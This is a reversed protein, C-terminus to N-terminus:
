MAEPTIPEVPEDVATDKPALLPAIESGFLTILRNTDLGNISVAGGPNLKIAFTLNEAGNPDLKRLFNVLRSSAEDPDLTMLVGYEESEGSMAIIPRLKALWAVVDTVFPECGRCVADVAGTPIPMVMSAMQLKGNAKIGYPTAGFEINQINVDVKGAEEASGKINIEAIVEGLQDIRPVLNKFAETLAEQNVHQVEAAGAAQMQHYLNAAGEQAQSLYLKYGQENASFRMNNYIEGNGSKDGTPSYELTIAYQTSSVDSHYAFEDIAFRFPHSNPQLGHMSVAGKLRLSQEGYLSFRYHEPMPAHYLLKFYKETLADYGDTGRMSPIDVDFAVDVLDGSSDNNFYLRSAKSLFITENLTKNVYEYDPINCDLRKINKLLEEPNKSWLDWNWLQTFKKSAIPENFGIDCGRVGSVNISYDWSDDGITSTGNYQGQPKINYTNSLANITILISGDLALKEQWNPLSLLAKRMEAIESGDPGVPMTAAFPVLFTSIPLDLVPQNIKVGVAMPFGTTEVSEYALFPHEANHANLSDLAQVVQDKAIKAQAHWLAYYGGGALILLVCCVALIKKM